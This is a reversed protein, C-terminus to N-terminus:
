GSEYFQLKLDKNFLKVKVRELSNETGRSQSAYRNHPPRVGSSTAAHDKRNFKNDPVPNGKRLMTAPKFRDTTAGFKHVRAPYEQSSLRENSDQLDMAKAASNGYITQGFTYGHDANSKISYGFSSVGNYSTVDRESQIQVEL